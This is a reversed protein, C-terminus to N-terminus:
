HVARRGGGECQIGLQQGLQRVEPRLHTDTGGGRVKGGQQDVNPSLNAHAGGKGSTALGAQQGAGSGSGEECGECRPKIGDERGGCECAM